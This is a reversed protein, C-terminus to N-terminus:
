LNISIIPLTIENSCTIRYYDRSTDISLFSDAMNLDISQYTEKTILLKYCGSENKESGIRSALHCISGATDSYCGLFRILAIEHLQNSNEVFIVRFQVHM